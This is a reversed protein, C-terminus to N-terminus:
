KREESKELSRRSDLDDIKPVEQAFKPHCLEEEDGKRRNM